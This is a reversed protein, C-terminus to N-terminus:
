KGEGSLAARAARVEKCVDEDGAFRQHNEEDLQLMGRLATKLRAIEAAQADIRDLLAPLQEVLTADSPFPWGAKREALSIRLKQTNITM